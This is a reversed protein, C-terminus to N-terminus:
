IPVPVFYAVNKRFDTTQNDSAIVAVTTAVFEVEGASANSDTIITISQIKNTLPPLIDNSTMIVQQYGDIVGQYTTNSNLNFIFQCHYNDYLNIQGSTATFTMGVVEYTELNITNVIIKPLSSISVMHITAYVTDLEEFTFSTGVPVNWEVNDSGSSEYYWGGMYQLSPPVASPSAGTVIVDEDDYNVKSVLFPSYPYDGVFASNTVPTNIPNNTLVLKILYSRTPIPDSLGTLLHQDNTSNMQLTFNIYDGEMLPVPQYGDTDVVNKFRDPHYRAIQMMLERVINTKTKDANTMFLNGSSDTRLVESTGNNSQIAKLSNYISKFIGTDGVDGGSFSMNEILARENTFLDVGRYTGFLKEALYREFDHKLLMKETDIGQKVIEGSSKVDDMMANAPNLRLNVPWNELFTYYRLDTGNMDNVDFHDTQYQFVARMDDLSIYLVATADTEPVISDTVNLYGKETLLISHNFESIVFNM